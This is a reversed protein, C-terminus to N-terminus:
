LFKALLCLHDSPYDQSPMGEAVMRCHSPLSLLAGLELGKYFIYDSTDCKVCEQNKRLVTYSDTERYANKLNSRRLVEFSLTGPCSNMDGCLVLPINELGSIYNVLSEAQSIRTQEYEERAILHTCVVYFMKGNMKLKLNYAFQNTDQFWHVEEQVLQLKKSKYFVSLGDEHWEPKQQFVGTYGLKTLEPLLYDYFHDVEQLCVVDAHWKAIENVIKPARIEWETFESPAGTENSIFDALINWQMISLSYPARKLEIISRNLLSM